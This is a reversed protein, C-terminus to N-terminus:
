PAEQPKAQGGAVPVAPAARQAFTLMQEILGADFHTEHRLHHILISMDKSAWEAPAGSIGKPWMWEQGPPTIGAAALLAKRVDKRSQPTDFWCGAELAATIQAEAPEWQAADPAPAGRADVRNQVGDLKWESIGQEAFWATLARAATVIHPPIRDALTPDFTPAPEKTGAAPAAALLARVQDATYVEVGGFYRRWEAAPTGRLNPNLNWYGDEFIKGIPQASLPAAALRRAAAALMTRAHGGLGHPRLVGADDLSLLSDICRVLHPTDGNFTDAAAPAAAAAVLEAAGHRADKHGRKYCAADGKDAFPSECPLNMIQQHLESM